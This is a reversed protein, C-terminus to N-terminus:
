TKFNGIAFLDSRIRMRNGDFQKRLFFVELRLFRFFYYMKKGGFLAHFPVVSVSAVPVSGTGPFASTKFFM